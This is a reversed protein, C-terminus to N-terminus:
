RGFGWAIALRWLPVPRGTTLRRVPIGCLARGVFTELRAGRSRNWGELVIILDLGDDAILKVDRALLDGWTEGTAANYAAPNGDSSALAARRHTESDLEAPSVVEYGVARLAFAAVNFAPFNFQPCGSMPGAVYVKEM